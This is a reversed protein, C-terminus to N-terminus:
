GRTGAVAAKSRPRVSYFDTDSLLGKGGKYPVFQDATGHFHIVPVARTPSCGETGMPGAVTAIAAIRDSMELATWPAEPDHHVAALDGFPWEHPEEPGAGHVQGVQRIRASPAGSQWDISPAM